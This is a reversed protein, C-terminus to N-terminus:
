KTFPQRAEQRNRYERPSCGLSAKFVKCFYSDGEFGVAAGIEGVPLDTHRLKEAAVRVRLANLYTIPTLHMKEMFVRTCARESVNAASAIDLLTLREAYHRQIFVLMQKIRNDAESKRHIHLVKRNETVMRRWIGTLQEILLLEHGFARSKYAGFAALFADLVEAQWPIDPRFILGPLKRCNELPQIFKLELHGQPLGAILRPSFVISLLRCDKVGAPRVMAHLVSANIFAGDGPNLTATEEGYRLLMQGSEVYLLETEEHWHWPVRGTLFDAFNNEYIAVPYDPTGRETLEKLDVDVPVVNLKFDVNDM